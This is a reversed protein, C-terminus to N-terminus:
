FHQVQQLLLPGHHCELLASNALGCLASTVGVRCSLVVFLRAFDTQDAADGLSKTTVAVPGPQRGFAAQIQAKKGALAIVQACQQTLLREVVFLQAGLNVGDPALAAVTVRLHSALCRGACGRCSPDLHAVDTASM